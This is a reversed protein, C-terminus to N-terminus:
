HPLRFNITIRTHMPVPHGDVSHPKFVWQKVPDMVAQALLPTGSVVKAELVRGDRGIGVDVVVPGQIGKRRAEEPYEPQIRHLINHEAFAGSVAMVRDSEVGSPRKVTSQKSLDQQRASPPLRFVEKGNEYVLLSGAPQSSYTAHASSPPRTLNVSRSPPVTSSRSEAPRDGSTLLSVAETTRGSSVASRNEVVTSLSAPIAPQPHARATTKGGGLGQVILVTLSIAFVLVAARLMGVSVDFGRASRAKSASRQLPRDPSRHDPDSTADVNETVIDEEIFNGVLPQAAEASEVSATSPESVRVLNKLLRHSLGELRREDSEGFASPRSSFIEFVGVSEDGLLLPFIILSRVDLNRCAEVDARPDAQADDCRQVQRTKICEATLGSKSGLRTGPKPAKPGSSARCVMEGDRVLLIAAGTEGADLCAQQVIENLVIDLALDASFTSGGQASFLAALEASNSKSGSSSAARKPAASESGPYDPTRVLSLNLTQKPLPTGGGFRPTDIYKRNKSETPLSSFVDGSSEAEVLVVGVLKTNIANLEKKLEFLENRRHRGAYVALVVGDSHPALLHASAGEGFPASHIVIYRFERRLQREILSAFRTSAFRSPDIGLKGAPLFFLKPTIERLSQAFEASCNMLEGLGPQPEVDLIAPLARNRFDADVLLVKESQVQSLGSAMQLSLRSTSTEAGMGAVLITGDIESMSALLRYCIKLADTSAEPPVDNVKLPQSAATGGLNDTVPSVTLSKTQLSRLSLDKISMINM